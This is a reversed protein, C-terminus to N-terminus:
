RRRRRLLDLLASLARAKESAFQDPPIGLLREIEQQSRMEIMDLELFKASRPDRARLAAWAERFRALVAENLHKVDLRAQGELCAEFSPGEDDDNM